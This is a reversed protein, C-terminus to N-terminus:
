SRDLVDEGGRGAKLRDQIATVGAIVPVAVLGGGFLLAAWWWAWRWYKVAGVFGLIAGLFPVYGLVIALPVAVIGPLGLWSEIGELTAAVQVLGVIMFLIFGVAQM